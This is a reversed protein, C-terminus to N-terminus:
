ANCFRFIFYKIINLSERVSQVADLRQFDKVLKKINQVIATMLAQEQVKKIGRYKAKRLGHNSKADAFSGEIISKRKRMFIRWQLDDKKSLQFDTYEQYISRGIDKPNDSNTRMCKSRYKCLSNCKSKQARYNFTKDKRPKKTSRSLKVNAPCYYVDEVQEYRFEDKNFMGASARGASRFPIYADINMNTLSKYVEGIGYGRDAVANKIKFNFTEKQRKLREIYPISDLVNGPTIHSDTIYGSIDVSRHELYYLGTPKGGRRMIRCDPDTTSRHINNDYRKSKNKKDDDDDKDQDISKNQIDLSEDLQNMYERPTIVIERLSDYSADAKIHTSDTLITKGNIFGKEMCQMVIEDFIDQFITSKSFKRRRTQSLTSHDPIKEDIDYKIFWRYALNVQIEKMLQRESKIDFMYGIFLIKFLVVPDIAPQGTHSYLRRVKERIFEFDLRNDIIRLIHDDPVYDDIMFNYFLKNESNKQKIM